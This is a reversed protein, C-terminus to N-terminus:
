HVRKVNDQNMEHKEQTNSTTLLLNDQQSNRLKEPDLTPNVQVKCVLRLAPGPFHSQLRNAITM